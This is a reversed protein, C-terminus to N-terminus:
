FLGETSLKELFGAYAYIRVIWLYVIGFITDIFKPCRLSIESSFYVCIWRKLFLPYNEAHLSLFVPM